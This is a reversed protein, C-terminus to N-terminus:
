TDNRELQELQTCNHSADSQQTDNQRIGNKNCHTLRHRSLLGM